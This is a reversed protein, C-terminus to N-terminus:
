ALGASEAFAVMKAALKQNAVRLGNKQKHGDATTFEIEDHCVFCLSVLDIDRKGEMVERDYSKHHVTKAKSPCAQCNWGDRRLVRSRITRWLPSKIYEQYDSKPTPVEQGRLRKLRTVVQAVIKVTNFRLLTSCFPCIGSAPIAKRKYKRLCDICYAKKHRM